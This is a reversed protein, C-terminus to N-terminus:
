GQFGETLALTGNGVEIVATHAPRPGLRCRLRAETRTDLTVTLDYEGPAVLASESETHGPLLHYQRHATTTGDVSVATLELDYAWQTDYSRIHVSESDVDGIPATTPDRHSRETTHVRRADHQGRMAGPEAPM